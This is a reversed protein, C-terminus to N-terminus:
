LIFRGSAAEFQLKVSVFEDRAGVDVPLPGFFVDEVVIRARVGTGMTISMLMNFVGEAASRRQARATVANVFAFYAPKALHAELQGSVGEFSDDKRNTTEGLYGEDLIKMKFEIGASKVGSENISDVTGDPSTFTVRVDQGKSRITTAM